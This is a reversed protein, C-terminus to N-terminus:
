RGRSWARGPADVVQWAVWMVVVASTSAPWIVLVAVAVPSGGVPGGTVSLSSSVTVRIANGHTGTVPQRRDNDPGTGGAPRRARGAVRLRAPM